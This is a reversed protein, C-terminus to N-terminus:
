NRRLRRSYMNHVDIFSSDLIEGVVPEPCYEGNSTSYVIRGSNRDFRRLHTFVYSDLFDSGKLESNALLMHLIKINSDKLYVPKKIMSLLSDLILSSKKSDVSSYISNVELEKKNFVGKLIANTLEQCLRITSSILPQSLVKNFVRFELTRHLMIGYLNIWTYRAPHYRDVNGPQVPVNGIRRFFSACNVSKLLDETNFIQVPAIRTGAEALVVQPGKNTIPRCYASNNLVVGRYKYGMGGLHFFMEETYEGIRVVSHLIDLIEEPQKDFLPFNIHIHVSGRYSFPREGREILLQLQRNLLEDFRTDDSSYLLPDRSVLEGGMLLSSGRDFERSNENLSLLYQTNRKRYQVTNRECSADHTVFFLDTVPIRNQQIDEVELELGIRDTLLKM